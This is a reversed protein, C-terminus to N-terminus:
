RKKEDGDPIGNANLDSQKKSLGGRENFAITTTQTGVPVNVLGRKCFKRLKFRFTQGAESDLDDYDFYVLSSGENLEKCTGKCRLTGDRPTMEIRFRKKPPIVRIKGECRGGGEPTCSLSWKLDLDMDGEGLGDYVVKTIKLSRCKCKPKPTPASGYSVPMNVDMVCDGSGALVGPPDAAAFNLSGTVFPRDTTFGFAAKGGPPIGTASRGGLIPAPPPRNGGVQWGAPPTRIGTALVGPPFTYRWCRIATTGTNEITLTWNTGSGAITGKGSVSQQTASAASVFALVLVGFALILLRRAM